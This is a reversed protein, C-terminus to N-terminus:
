RVTTHCPPQWYTRNLSFPSPTLDKLGVAARLFCYSASLSPPEGSFRARLNSRTGSFGRERFFAMPNSIIRDAKKRARQLRGKEGSIPPSPPRLGSSPAHRTGHEPTRINTDRRRLVRPSEGEGEGEGGTPSHTSMTLREVPSLPCSLRDIARPSDRLEFRHQFRQADLRIM